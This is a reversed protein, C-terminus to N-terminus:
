DGREGAEVRQLGEAVGRCGRQLGDADRRVAGKKKRKAM